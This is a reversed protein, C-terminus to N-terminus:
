AKQKERRWRRVGAAGLALLAISPLMAPASVAMPPPPPPPPPPAVLDAANVHVFDGPTDSYVWRDISVSMTGVGMSLILEAFGYQTGVGTDFRFGILNAGIVANILDDQTDFYNLAGTGFSVVSRQAVERASSTQGWAYPGNTGPGNPSAGVNFSTPLVLFHFMSASTLDTAPSVLGSGNLGNSELFIRYNLQTTGEGLFKFLRLQFEDAGVVDLDWGVITGNADTESVSVPSGNVVVLGAQAAFPV